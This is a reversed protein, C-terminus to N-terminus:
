NEVPTKEIHDIVLQEVTVKRPELKLGLSQVAKFLSSSGGPATAADAPGASGAPPSPDAVWKARAAGTLDELLFSIVVPYKGTLGTLDKVELGGGTAKLLTTLMGALEAMTTQSAKITMTRTAPDVGYSLTGKAGMDIAGSSGDKNTTTRVPGDPSVIQKEGPSLPADPDIPKGESAPKMKPGGEALTLALAQRERNERHVALKFREELLARLMTPADDKAAGDPMKAVIDFQQKAIWDPGAIQDPKVKYALCILEMPTMYIYEAQAGDVRPGIRPTSGNQIFAARLNEVNIPAAPKISAVEFTRPAQAPAVAPALTLCVFIILRRKVERM